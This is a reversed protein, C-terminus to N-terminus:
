NEYDIMFKHLSIIYINDFNNKINYFVTKCFYKVTM